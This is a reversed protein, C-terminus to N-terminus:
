DRKMENKTINDNDTIGLNFNKALTPLPSTSFDTTDHKTGSSSAISVSGVDTLERNESSKDDRSESSKDDRSESSKEDMKTEERHDVSRENIKKNKYNDISDNVRRSIDFYNDLLFEEQQKHIGLINFYDETKHPTFEIDEQYFNNEMQEFTEETAKFITYEAKYYKIPYAM